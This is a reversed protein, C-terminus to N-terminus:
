RARGQPAIMMKSNEEKHNGKRKRRFQVRMKGVSSEKEIEFLLIKIPHHLFYILLYIFVKIPVLRM